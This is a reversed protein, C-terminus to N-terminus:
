PGSVDLAKIIKELREINPHFDTIILSGSAPHSVIVGSESVLPNLVRKADDPSIHYLPVVKTVLRDEVIESEGPLRTEVNRGPATESPIIKIVGGAAEVLTYGHVELVSQFFVFVESVPVKTSSVVTIPGQVRPDVIVNVGTVESVHSIVDRIDADRFDMDVFSMQAAETKTATDPVGGKELASSPECRGAAPGMWLLFWLLAVTSMLVGHEPKM